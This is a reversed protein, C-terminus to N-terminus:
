KFPVWLKQVAKRRRLLLCVCYKDHATVVQDILVQISNIVTMLMWALSHKERASLMGLLARELILAFKKIKGTVEQCERPLPHLCSM